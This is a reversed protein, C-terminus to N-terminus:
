HFTGALAAGIEKGAHKRKFSINRTTDIERQRSKEEFEEQLRRHRWRSTSFTTVFINLLIQSTVQDDGSM